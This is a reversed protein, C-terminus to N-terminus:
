QFNMISDHVDQYIDPPLLRKLLPHELREPFQLTYYYIPGGNWSPVSWTGSNAMLELSEKEIYDKSGGPFHEISDVKADVDAKIRAFNGGHTAVTKGRKHAEEVIAVLDEPNIIEWPKLLDTGAELLKIAAQRAEDGSNVKIQIYKGFTYRGYDRVIFPGSVFLRPGKVRGANIEDRLD